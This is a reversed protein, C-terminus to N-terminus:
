SMLTDDRAVRLILSFVTVFCPHPSSMEKPTLLVVSIGSCFFVVLQVGIPWNLKLQMKTDTEYRKVRAQEM